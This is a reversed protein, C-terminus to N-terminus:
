GNDHVKTLRNYEQRILHSIEDIELFPGEGSFRCGCFGNVSNELKTLYKSAKIKERIAIEREKREARNKLWKIM